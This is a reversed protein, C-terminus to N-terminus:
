STSGSPCPLSESFRLDLVQGVEPVGDAATAWWGVLGEPEHMSRYIKSIDGAIGVQHRVCAM